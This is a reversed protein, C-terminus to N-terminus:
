EQRILKHLGSAVALATTVTAALGTAIAIVPTITSNAGQWSSLTVGLHSRLRCAAHPMPTGSASTTSPHMAAVLWPCAYDSRGPHAYGAPV